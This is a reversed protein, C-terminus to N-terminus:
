PFGFSPTQKVRRGSQVDGHPRATKTEDEVPTRHPFHADVLVGPKQVQPKGSFGTKENLCDSTPPLGLPNTPGYQPRGAEPSDALSANRRDGASDVVARRHRPEHEGG